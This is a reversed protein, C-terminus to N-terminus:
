VQIALFLLHLYVASPLSLRGFSLHVFPPLLHFETHPRPLAFRIQIVLVRVMTSSPNGVFSLGTRLHSCTRHRRLKLHDSCETFDVGRPFIRSTSARPPASLYAIYVGHSISAIYHHAYGSLVRYKLITSM